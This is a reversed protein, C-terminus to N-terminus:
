NARLLPLLPLGPALRSAADSAGPLISDVGEGSHPLLVWRASRSASGLDRGKRAPLGGEGPAGVRLWNPLALCAPRSIPPSGQAEVGERAGGGAEARRHRASLGRQAPHGTGSAPVDPTGPPSGWFLATGEGGGRAM